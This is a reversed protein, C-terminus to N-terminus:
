YAEPGMKKKSVCYDLEGERQKRMARAGLMIDIANDSSANRYWGDLQLSSPM